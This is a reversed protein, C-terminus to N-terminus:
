REAGNPEGEPFGGIAHELEFRAMWVGRSVDADLIRAELFADAADVFEVVGVEGEAYAVRASSLLEDAESVGGEMLERQSLASELRAQALAAERAVRSRLVTVETGAREARALAADTAAARRDLLPLPLHLGLFLGNRGDSQDKFGGTVSTGSLWSRRALSVEAELADATSRAREIEARRALAVEVAALESADGAPGPDEARVRPVSANGTIM